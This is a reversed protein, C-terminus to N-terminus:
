WPLDDAQVTSSPPTSERAHSPTDGRSAQFGADNKEKAARIAVLDPHNMAVAEDFLVFAHDYSTGQYQRAWNPHHLRIFCQGRTFSNGSYASVWNPYQNDGAFQLEDRFKGEMIENHNKVKVKPKPAGARAQALSAISGLIQELKDVIGALTANLQVLQEPTM